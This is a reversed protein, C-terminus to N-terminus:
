APRSLVKAQQKNKFCIEISASSDEHLENKGASVGYLWDALLHASGAHPFLRDYGRVDATVPLCGIM